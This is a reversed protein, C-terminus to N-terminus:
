ERSLIWRSLAGDGGIAFRVVNGHILEQPVQLPRGNAALSVGSACGLFVKLPATGTVVRKSGVTGTEYLLRRGSADYVEAWSNDSFKMQLEIPATVSQVAPKIAVSAEVKKEEVKAAPAPAAAAPEMPKMSVKVTESTVSHAPWLFWALVAAGALGVLSIALMPGRRRAPKMAPRLPALAPESGSKQEYLSAVVQPDLGLLNAYKCLHGKAFVRPGLAAFRGAELAEIAWPDLHLSEAAQQISLGRREREGRLREGAAAGSEEPADAAASM